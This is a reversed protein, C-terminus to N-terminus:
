EGRMARDYAEREREPSTAGGCLLPVRADAGAKRMRHQTAAVLLMVLAAGVFALPDDSM